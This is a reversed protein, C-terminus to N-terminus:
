GDPWGSGTQDSLARYGGLMVTAEGNSAWTVGVFRHPGTRGAERLGAQVDPVHSRGHMILVPLFEAQLNGFM